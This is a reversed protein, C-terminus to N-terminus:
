ANNMSQQKHKGCIIIQRVQTTLPDYALHLLFASNNRTYVTM